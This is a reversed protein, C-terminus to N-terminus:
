VIELSSKAVLKNMNEMFVNIVFSSIDICFNTTNELEEDPVDNEICLKELLASSVNAVIEELDKLSVPIDNM